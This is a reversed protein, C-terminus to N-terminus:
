MKKVYSVLALFGTGIIWAIGIVIVAVMWPKLFGPSSELSNNKDKM